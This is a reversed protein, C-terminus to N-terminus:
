ICYWFTICGFIALFSLYVVLTVSVVVLDVKEVNYSALNQEIDRITWTYSGLILEAPSGPRNFPHFQRIVIDNTRQRNHFSTLILTEVWIEILIRKAKKM